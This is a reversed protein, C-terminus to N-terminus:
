GATASGHAQIRSQINKRADRKEKKQSNKVTYRESQSIQSSGHDPLLPATWQAQRVTIAWQLIGFLAVIVTAVAAILATSNNALWNNQDQLQKIQLTLQEKQLATMTADPTLQPQVITPTPTPLSPTGEYAAASLPIGLMLVLFFLLGALTIGVKWRDRKLRRM